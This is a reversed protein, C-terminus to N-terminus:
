QEGLAAQLAKVVSSWERSQPDAVEFHGAGPLMVLTAEDGLLLARDYYSKSIEYPVNADNTGHVLWQPVELPLLEAPSGAGYREPVSEPTGGMLDEVVGNSLGLECGRRLDAVGALSVAGKLPLPAAAYLASEESIRHRAALWLAMQGGASHGTAAVRALDLDYTPALERVFDAAAAVDLFTGPWGGGPNGLRRYEVNWTAFGLSTLAACAHGMYLLDYRARWFGGHVVIILPHPGGTTPLRLDGFNWEDPGYQIRAADQPAPRSLIDDSM